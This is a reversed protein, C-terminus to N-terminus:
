GPGGPKRPAVPDFPSWTPSISYAPKLINCGHGRVCALQFPSRLLELTFKILEHFLQLDTWVGSVRNSGSVGV